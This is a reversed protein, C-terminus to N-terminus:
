ISTSLMLTWVGGGLPRLRRTCDVGPGPCGSQSSIRDPSFSKTFLLVSRFLLAELKAFTAQLSRVTLGSSPLLPEFTGGCDGFLYDKNTVSTTTERAFQVFIHGLSDCYIINPVYSGEKKHYLDVLFVSFSSLLACTLLALLSLSAAARDWDWVTPQWHNGHPRPRRTLAALWSDHAESTVAVPDGGARSCRARDGEGHGRWPWGEQRMSCSACLYWTDRWPLKQESPEQVLARRATPPFSITHQLCELRGMPLYSPPNQKALGCSCALLERYTWLNKKKKKLFFTILIRKFREFRLAM